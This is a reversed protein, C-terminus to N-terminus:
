GDRIECSDTHYHACLRSPAHGAPRAPLHQRGKGARYTASKLVRHCGQLQFIKILLVVATCGAVYILATGFIFVEISISCLIPFYTVSAACINKHLSILIQAAQGATEAMMAM